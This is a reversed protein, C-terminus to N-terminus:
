PGRAHSAAIWPVYLAHRFPRIVVVYVLGRADQAERGRADALHKAGALKFSLPDPSV